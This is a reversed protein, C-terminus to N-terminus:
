LGYCYRLIIIADAMNAIRLVKSIYILGILPKIEYEVVAPKCFYAMVKGIALPFCGVKAKKTKSYNVYPYFLNYPEGQYWYKYETLLPEVGSNPISEYTVRTKRTIPMGGSDTIKEDVNNGYQRNLRSDEIDNLAYDVLRPLIPDLILGLTNIPISTSDDKGIATWSNEYFLNGVLYDGVSDIFLNVTNPNMVLIDPVNPDPYIGPGFEPFWPIYPHRDPALDVTLSSPLYGADTVALVPSSIRSDAALIAYGQNDEFNAIYFLNEVDSAESSRSTPINISYVEAVKPSEAARSGVIDIKLFDDLNKLATNVPVIYDNSAKKEICPLDETQTCSLACLIFGLIIIQNKM